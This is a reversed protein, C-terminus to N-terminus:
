GEKNLPDYPLTITFKVGNDISSQCEIKGKFLQTILNFVIHMGLGNGGSNRKTTVFPDYIKELIEDDIGKGNDTYIIIINDDAQNVMISITGSERHEFGHKLSNNVLNNLIQYM